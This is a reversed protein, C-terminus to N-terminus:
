LRSPQAYPPSVVAGAARTCSPAEAGEWMLQPSTPRPCPLSRRPQHRTIAPGGATALNDPCRPQATGGDPSAIARTQQSGRLACPSSGLLHEAKADSLSQGGLARGEVIGFDCSDQKSEAAMRLARPRRCPRQRLDSIRLGSCLSVLSSATSKRISRCAFGLQAVCGALTHLAGRTTAEASIL